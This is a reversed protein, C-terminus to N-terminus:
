EGRRHEESVPDSGGCGIALFAIVALPLLLLAALLAM